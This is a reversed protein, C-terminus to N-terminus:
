PQVRVRYFSVPGEGAPLTQEFPTTSPRGSWVPTWRRLDPSLEIVYEWGVEGSIRVRLGGPEGAVPEIFPATIPLTANSRGPTPQPFTQFPESAGDPLRGQSSGEMPAEYTVRELLRGQADHLSFTGGAAPLKIGLSGPGEGGDAKVVLFGGPEVYAATAVRSVNGASVFQLGLLSAPHEADRNHMELWDPEGAVPNALWENITLSEHTALIVSENAEGPTPRGLSWDLQDSPSRGVTFGPIQAGYTVADVRRAQRDFLSVTEGGGDLAFGVAIAPLGGINVTAPLPQVGTGVCGVLLFERPGLVTGEPLLGKRAVSDDSLSWGGLDVAADSTNHLELWDVNASDNAAQIENLRVPIAPYPAMARGPTGDPEEGTRWNAPAAPEDNPDLLELSPGFGDAERPWGGADDYRVSVVPRGAADALTLREGGNSLNGDFWGYVEIGPYRGAFASPSLGSAIVVRRGPSLLSGAPFFYDVGDLVFGTADVTVSGHNWVELFEYPEGGVPHYHIESIVLAPVLRGVEFTGESLASWEDGVRTRAKVVTSTSIPIPSVYAAAGSAVLGTFPERPDSGDTTFYIGGASASLAVQTGPEVQGPATGFRPAVANRPFLGAAQLQSVLTATRGPFYATALRRRENKFHGDPTYLEYPPNSYRHVDRRYDGWRASEAVMASEVRGIWAEYRAAARAPTLAGDGFCHRQVRDAFLLRYEPSALLRAHLGSPQDNRTVINATPSNLMLEGDWSQYRFGAGPIRRRSAYWNKDTFWDEHGVYFHLLLFDIHAPIDLWQQMREYGARTDLGTLSRMADYSTRNGDVVQGENMVDYEDETGGQYAAAFTADPRETADYVGWYLGNVYLHFFRNHSALGGMARQSEKMWADRVRQGRARQEGNWHMWSNNFDARLILTDFERLPSEPFVQHRLKSDGYDAKFVLRFSHKATKVPDRVSNGQMQVGCDAQVTGGPELDLIEMSAPREWSAGREQSKPYIGNANDFMDAPRTVISLAPLSRLAPVVRDRYAPADIIEPDMGYDATWSRGSGDIWTPPVGPPNASQRALQAPFLYTHTATPSPLWGDRFAAARMVRTGGMPLPGSYVTGTTSTPESGDTTYRIEAGEVACALRVDFPADFVGREVDFTVRPLAGLITGSGNAVGPTPRAFYRLNGAADTGYSVDNRQEPYSPDFGSAFTRPSGPGFLALYEGAMGLKFNTHLRGAGTAPRRDKGSAFVVLFGGPALRVSPFVWKGPDDPDDTLSWGALNVEATGLNELEIWDQREGDEDSLGTTGSTGALLESIRVPQQTFEPDVVYFWGAAELRNAPTAQDRIDADPAWEVATRGPPVPECRFVYPGRGVGSVEIAPKGGIRLDGADVGVVAESFRVEVQDLIRVTLGPSPTTEVVEPATSDVLQYVWSTGPGVSDFRNPPRAQDEIGAGPDWAVRVEGYAPQELDFRYTTGSGELRVAPRGGVVLDSFGVGSVEESFEVTVRTLSGVTGPAPDIRILNPPTTDPVVTALEMEFVFDSSTASSNFAQVTVHNSGPRWWGGVPDLFLEKWVLPEEVAALAVATYALDTTSKNVAAVQVGNIWLVFGDDCFYRLRLLAPAPEDGADFSTRLYLSTYRNRMDALPTNGTYTGDTDYFFPARGLTWGDAVFGPQRWADIPSSPDATGKFYSWDAETRVLVAAIGPLASCLWVVIM